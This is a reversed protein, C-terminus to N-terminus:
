ENMVTCSVGLRMSVTMTGCVGSYECDRELVPGIVSLGLDRQVGGGFDQSGDICCLPQCVHQCDRFMEPFIVPCVSGCGSSRQQRSRVLAM